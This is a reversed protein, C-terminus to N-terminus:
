GPHACALNSPVQATRNKASGVLFTAIFAFRRSYDRDPVVQTMIKPLVFGILRKGLFNRPTHHRTIGRAPQPVPGSDQHNWGSM